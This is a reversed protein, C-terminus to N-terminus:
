IVRPVVNEPKMFYALAFDFCFSGGGVTSVSRPLYPPPRHRAVAMGQVGLCFALNFFVKAKGGAKQRVDAGLALLRIGILYRLRTRARDILDDWRSTGRDLIAVADISICSRLLGRLRRAKDELFVEVPVAAVLGSRYGFIMAARIPRIPALAGLSIAVPYRSSTIWCRVTAPGGIITHGALTGFVGTNVIGLADNGLRAYAKLAFGHTLTGGTTQIELQGTFGDVEAMSNAGAVVTKNVIGRFDSLGDANATVTTDIDIGAVTNGGGAITGLNRTNLKRLEYGATGAAYSNADDFGVMGAGVSDSATSALNNSLIVVPDNADAVYDVVSGAATKARFSYSAASTYIAARAGNHIVAGASISLPQTAVQTLATDWYVTIPNTEPDQNAVGIYLSGNELPKGNLDAIFNKQYIIQTTM